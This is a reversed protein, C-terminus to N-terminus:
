HHSQQRALTVQLGDSVKADAEENKYPDKTWLGNRKRFTPSVPASIGSVFSRSCICRKGKFVKKSNFKDTNNGDEEKDHWEELASTGELYTTAQLTIRTRKEYLTECRECISEM